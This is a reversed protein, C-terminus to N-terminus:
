EEFGYGTVAKGRDVNAHSMVVEINKQAVIIITGYTYYLIDHLM